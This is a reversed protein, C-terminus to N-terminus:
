STTLLSRLSQSDQAIQAAYTRAFRAAIEGEIGTDRAAAFSRAQLEQQLTDSQKWQDFQSVTIERTLTQTATYSAALLILAFNTDRQGLGMAQAAGRRLEFTGLQEIRAFFTNAIIALEGLHDPALTKLLATAQELVVERISRKTQPLFSLDPLPLNASTALIGRQQAWETDLMESYIQACTDCRDLHHKVRPRVSSVVDGALEADIFAPLEELCEAHSIQGDEANWLADGLRRLPTPFKEPQERMRALLAEYRSSSSNM